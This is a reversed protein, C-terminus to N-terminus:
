WVLCNIMGYDNRDSLWENCVFQKLSISISDNTILTALPSDLVNPFFYEFLFFYFFYIMWENMNM